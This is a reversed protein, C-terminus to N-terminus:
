IYERGECYKEDLDYEGDAYNELFKLYNLAEIIDMPKKDFGFNIFNNDLGMCDGAPSFSTMTKVAFYDGDSISEKVEELVGVIYKLYAEAQEKALERPNFTKTMIETPKKM